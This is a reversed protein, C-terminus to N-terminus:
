VNNEVLNIASSRSQVVAATREAGWKEVLRYLYEDVTAYLNGTSHGTTGRGVSRAELVAVRRGASALLEATTIGTIGGGIVAVDVSLDGDLAAFELTDDLEHWLARAAPSGPRLHSQADAIVVSATETPM